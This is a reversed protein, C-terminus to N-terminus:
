KKLITRSATYGLAAAVMLIAGIIKGITSDAAIAGTTMLAGLVAVALNIWFETSTFGSKPEDAM